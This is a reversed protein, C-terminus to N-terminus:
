SFEREWTVILHPYCRAGTMAELRDLLREHALWPPASGADVIAHSSWPWDAARRCLAARVPNLAVYAILRLFAEETKVVPSKFRDHFLHGIREHRNNFWRGYQGHLWQMGNGLNPEPTEIVLHVHNPMLCYALLNWGQRRSVTALLRTYTQYDLDDVFM